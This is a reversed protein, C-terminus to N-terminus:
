FDIYSIISSLPFSNVSSFSMALVRLMGLIL